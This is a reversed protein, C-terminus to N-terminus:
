AISTFAQERQGVEAGESRIFRGEREAVIILYDRSMLAKLGIDLDM